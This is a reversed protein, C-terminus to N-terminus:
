PLKPYEFQIPKGALAEVLFAKLQKKDGDSLKLPKLVTNGKGGGADFFEIVEDLTQQIGNHM